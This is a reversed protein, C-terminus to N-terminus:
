QEEVETTPPVVTMPNDYGGTYKKKESPNDSTLHLNKIIESIADEIKYYRRFIFNTRERNDPDPLIDFPLYGRKMLVRAIDARRVTITNTTM